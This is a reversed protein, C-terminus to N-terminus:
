FRGRKGKIVRDVWADALALPDEVESGQSDDEDDEDDDGDDDDNNGRLADNHGLPPQDVVSKPQGTNNLRRRRRDLDNPVKSSGLDTLDTARRLNIDSNNNLDTVATVYVPSNKNMM